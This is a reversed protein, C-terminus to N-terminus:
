MACKDTRNEFWMHLSAIYLMDAGGVLVVDVVSYRDCSSSTQDHSIHM